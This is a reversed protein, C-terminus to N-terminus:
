DGEERAITGEPFLFSMDLSDGPSTIPAVPAIAVPAIAVPSSSGPPSAVPAITLPASSGTIAVPSSSGPARRPPSESLQVFTHPHVLQMYHRLQDGITMSLVNLQSLTAKDYHYTGKLGSIGSAARELGSILHHFIIDEPHYRSLLSITTDIVRHLFEITAKRGEGQMGRKWAYMWWSLWSDAPVIELYYNVNIKSGEKINGIFDLQELITRVDSPCRLPRPLAASSPSPVPRPLAASSPSPVPRPLAASSPIISPLEGNM